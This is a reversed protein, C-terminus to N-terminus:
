KREYWIHCKQKNKKFFWGFALSTVLTKYSYWQYKRWSTQIPIDLITFKMNKQKAWKKLHKSFILEEAIFVTQDFGGIDRWADSLCFLFLGAALNRFKSIFNWFNILFKERPLSVQANDVITGGGAIQGTDLLELTAKLLHPSLTTDADLFIFYKGKAIKAGANRARSIQNVPEFVVTAGFDRAIQATRDASNNDVVIVEGSHDSVANQAVKVCALTKGLFGEENYAPIIISYDPM